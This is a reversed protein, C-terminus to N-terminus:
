NIFRRDPLDGSLYARGVAAALQTDVTELADEATAGDMIRVATALGTLIGSIFVQASSGSDDTQRKMEQTVAKLHARTRQDM